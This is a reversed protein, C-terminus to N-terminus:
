AALVGNRQKDVFEVLDDRVVKAMKRLYSDLQIIDAGTALETDRIFLTKNKKLADPVHNLAAQGIASVIRDATDEISRAAKVDAKECIIKLDKASMQLLAAKADVDQKFLDRNQSATQLSDGDSETVFFSHGSSSQFRKVIERFDKYRILPFNKAIYRYATLWRGDTKAFDLEPPSFKDTYYVGSALLVEFMKDLNIYNSGFDDSNVKKIVERLEDKFFGFGDMGLVSNFRGSYLFLDIFSPKVRKSDFLKKNEGVRLIAIVDDLKFEFERKGKTM